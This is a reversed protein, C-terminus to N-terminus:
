PTAARVSGSMQAGDIRVLYCIALRDGDNWGEDGPYFMSFDLVPNSDISLGTYSTFAPACSGAAFAFLDSETPLPAGDTGPLNGIYFVEATHAESCPHHQVDDIDQVEAPDDFCDGVQLEAANGTLRDRLLWGGLAIVGVIALRVGIGTVFRGV